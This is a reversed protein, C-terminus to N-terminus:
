RRITIKLTRKKAASTGARETVIVTAVLRKRARLAKKIAKLTKKTFKVKVTVAKNPQLSLSLKKGKFRLARVIQAQRRKKKAKLQKITAALNVKCAQGSRIKLVLVRKKLLKQKKAAKVVLGCASQRAGLVLQSGQDVTGGSSGAGTDGGTGGGGGTDGGTAIDNDHITVTASSPTGLTAAANPNTSTPNALALGFAFIGFHCIATFWFGLPSDKAGVGARLRELEGAQL